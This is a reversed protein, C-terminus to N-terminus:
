AKDVSSSIDERRAVRRALGVLSHLDVRKLENAVTNGTALLYM